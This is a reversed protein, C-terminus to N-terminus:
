LTWIVDNLALGAGQGLKQPVGTGLIGPRRQRHADVPDDPHPRVAPGPQRVGPRRPQLEGARRDARAEKFMVDGLLNISKAAQLREGVSPASSGGRRSPSCTARCPSSTRCTPWCTRSASMTSAGEARILRTIQGRFMTHAAQRVQDTYRARLEGQVERQLHAPVRRITGKGDPTPQTYFDDDELKFQHRAAQLIACELVAESAEPTTTSYVLPGGVHRAPRGCRLAVLEAQDASWGFELAHPVLDVTREAGDDSPMGQADLKVKVRETGAYKQVRARIASVRRAEAAEAKRAAQIRKQAAAEAKKDDDADDDDAAKAKKAKAPPEDDGEAPKDPDDEAAMCKKLAAKADKETMQDIQEDSYKMAVINGEAKAAKLLKKFMSRGGRSASVAASTDGDAGLPVFSIEGIVTERSITLPGTV